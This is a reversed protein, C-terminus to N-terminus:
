CAPVPAEAWAAALAAVSFLHSRGSPDNMGHDFAPFEWYTLHCSGGASFAETTTRAAALPASTDLGGQVLLFPTDTELMYDLSSHDLIDAWFRQTHGGFLASSDPNARAAAFGADIAAHGEPPVTSRVMEGFDTGTASSLLVVADADIRTALMAMALGGESGGFLVTRQAIGPQSRLADLVVRYDEVRQSVTYRELYEAPCDTYGDEIAADPTIGVKEVILATYAAFGARVEALARNAAGPNCGSGQSLVLLGNSPGEPRDLTFHILSGDARALTRSEPAALVPGAALALMVLSLPLKM